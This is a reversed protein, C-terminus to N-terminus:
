FNYVKDAALIRFSTIVQDATDSDINERTMFDIFSQFTVMGTANPDVVAMIRQFEAEGQCNTHVPM